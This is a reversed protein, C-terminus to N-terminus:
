DTMLKRLDTELQSSRAKAEPTESPNLALQEARLRAAELALLLDSLLKARAGADQGDDAMVANALSEIVNIESLLAPHTTPDAYATDARVARVLALASRAAVAPQRLTSNAALFEPSRPPAPVVPDAVRNLNSRNTVVRAPAPKGAYEIGAIVDDTTRAVGAIIDDRAGGLDGGPITRLSELAAKLGALTEYMNPQSNGARSVGNLKALTANLAPSVPAPQEGFVPHTLTFDLAATAAARAQALDARGKEVFGGHTNVTAGGLAEAAQDLALLVPDLRLDFTATAPPVGRDPPPLPTGASATRAASGFGFALVLLCFCSRLTPM